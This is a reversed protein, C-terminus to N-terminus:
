DLGPLREDHIHGWFHLGIQDVWGGQQGIFDPKPFLEIVGSVRNPGHGQCPHGGYEGSGPPLLHSVPLAGFTWEDPLCCQHFNPEPLGVAGLWGFPGGRPLEPQQDAALHVAGFDLEAQAVLRISLDIQRHGQGALHLPVENLSGELIDLLLQAHM